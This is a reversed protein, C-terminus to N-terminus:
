MSAKKLNKLKRRYDKENILKNIRAEELYEFAKDIFWQEGTNGFMEAMVDIMSIFMGSDHSNLDDIITEVMSTLNGQKIDKSFQESYKEPFITPFFMTEVEDEAFSDLMETEERYIAEVIKEIDATRDSTVPNIVPHEEEKKEEVTEPEAPAEQESLDRVPRGEIIDQMFSETKQMHVDLDDMLAKVENIASEDKDKIQKVLQEAKDGASVYMEPIEDRISKLKYLQAIENKIIQDNKNLIENLRLIEQLYFNRNNGRDEEKAKVIQTLAGFYDEESEKKRSLGIYYQSLPSAEQPLNELWQQM